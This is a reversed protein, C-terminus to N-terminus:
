CEKWIGSKKLLGKVGYEIDTYSAQLIGRRAIFVMVVGKPINVYYNQYAQRMKRKFRNRIVANGLKKGVSFGAQRLGSQDTLYYLVMLSNHVSQGQEFLLSFKSGEKLRESRPLSM